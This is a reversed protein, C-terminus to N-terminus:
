YVKIINRISACTRTYDINGPTRSVLTSEFNIWKGDMKVQVGIHKYVSSSTGQVVRPSYGNPKLVKVAWDALRWCRDERNRKVAAYTTGLGLGHRFNKGM